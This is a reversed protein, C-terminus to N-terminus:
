CWRKSSSSHLFIGAPVVCKLVDVWKGDSLLVVLWSFVEVTVTVAVILVAVPDEVNLVVTTVDVVMPDLVAAEAGTGSSVLCLM